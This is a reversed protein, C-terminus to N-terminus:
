FQYRATVRVVRGDQIVQQQTLEEGAPDGFRRNFLNSVGGSLELGNQFPRAVVSLNMIGFGSVDGGSLTHRASMFRAESSFQLREGVLPISAGIRALHTPSNVPRQNTARDRVRQLAYSIKTDIGTFTAEAGFEIGDARVRNLNTFVLLGDSSDTVLRILGSADFHYASVTARAMPALRREAVIEYSSIREPSLAPSTKQTQGNDQYYLEYFTPARFARGYLAKFTTAEDPSYILAARPNTTGGFTQYHDYRVGANLLLRPM